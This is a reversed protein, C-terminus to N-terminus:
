IGALLSLAQWMVNWDTRLVSGLVFGAIAVATFELAHLNNM